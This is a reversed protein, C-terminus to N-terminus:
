ELRHFTGSNKYFANGWLFSSIEIVTFSDNVAIPATRFRLSDGYYHYLMKHISSDANLEFIITDNKLSYNGSYLTDCVGSINEVCPTIRVTFINSKLTLQSTQTIECHSYDEDIPVCRLFDIWTYTEHWTGQIDNKLGIPETVKKCSFILLFIFIVKLHKYCIM